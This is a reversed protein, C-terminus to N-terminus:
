QSVRVGDIADGMVVVERGGPGTLRAACASALRGPSWTVLAVDGMEEKVLRWAGTSGGEPIVWVKWGRPATFREEGARLVGTGADFVVSIPAGRRSSEAQAHRVLGVVRDRVRAADDGGRARVLSPLVVAGALAVIALVVLLELLTVGRGWSAGTWRRARRQLSM